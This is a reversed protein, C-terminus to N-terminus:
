FERWAFVWVLPAILAGIAVNLIVPALPFNGLVRLAGAILYFHMPPWVGHLLLFPDDLWRQAIWIRLSHDLSDQGAFPLCALRVVLALLFVGLVEVAVRTRLPGQRAASSMM